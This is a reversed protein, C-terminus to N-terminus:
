DCIKGLYNEFIALIQFFIVIDRVVNEITRSPKTVLTV